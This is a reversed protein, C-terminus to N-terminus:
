VESNRIDGPVAAVEGARFAGPAVLPAGGVGVVAGDSELGPVARVLTGHDGDLAALGLEELPSVDQYHRIEVVSPVGNGLALVVVRLRLGYLPGARRQEGDVRSIIDDRVGGEVGRCGGVSRRYCQGLHLHSGKGRGSCLPPLQLRGHERPPRTGVTEGLDDAGRVIHVVVGEYRGRRHGYLRRVYTNVLGMGTRGRLSRLHKNRGGAGQGVVIDPDGVGCRGGGRRWRGKRFAAGEVAVRVELVLVVKHGGTVIGGGVVIGQLVGQGVGSPVEGHVKPGRRELAQVEIGAPVLGLGPLGAPAKAYAVRVPISKDRFRVIMYVVGHLSFLNRGGRVLVLHM